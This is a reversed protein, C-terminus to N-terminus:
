MRFSIYYHGDRRKEINLRHRNRKVAKAVQRLTVPKDLYNSVVKTLVPLAIEEVKDELYMLMTATIMADIGM